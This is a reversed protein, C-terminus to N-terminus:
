LLREAKSIRAMVDTSRGSSGFRGSDSGVFISAAIFLGLSVPVGYQGM